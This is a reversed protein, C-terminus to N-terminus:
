LANLVFLVCCDEENSEEEDVNEDDAEKDKAKQEIQELARKRREEAFFVRHELGLDAFTPQEPIRALITTQWRKFEIEKEAASMSHHTAGIGAGKILQYDEQIIAAPELIKYHPYENPDDLHGIRKEYVNKFDKLVAYDIPVIHTEKPDMTTEANVPSSLPTPPRAPVQEEQEEVAVATRINSTESAVTVTPNLDKERLAQIQYLAEQQRQALRRYEQLVYDTDCQLRLDGYKPPAPIESSGDMSAALRNTRRVMRSLLKRRLKRRLLFDICLERQLDTLETEPELLIGTSSNPKALTTSITPKTSSTPGEVVAVRMLEDRGDPSLRLQGQGLDLLILEGRDSSQCLAQKVGHLSRNLDLMAAMDADNRDLMRKWTVSQKLLAQQEAVLQQQQAAKSKRSM